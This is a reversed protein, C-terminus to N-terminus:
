DDRRIERSEQRTDQKTGRKDQRCDMRSDDGDLCEQKLDRAEERGGQRNDRADYRDGRRDQRRESGYTEAQALPAIFPPAAMSLLLASVTLHLGSSRKM